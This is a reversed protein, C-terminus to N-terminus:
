FNIIAILGRQGSPGVTPALTFKPEAEPEGARRVATRGVIFGITAGAVVDSLHHRGGTVRSAGIITALTYMPLGVKAGHHRELVTAWAFANSTHGSPFSNDASGDPRTRQVTAKLAATYAFTVASAVVVDYSSDRFSQDRTGRGIALMGVAALAAAGGGFEAGFAALDGGGNPDSTSDDALSSLGTAAMGVAFPVLSPRSFVGIATRGMNVPLRGITRRGDDAVIPEHDQEARQRDVPRASAAAPAEAQAEIQAEIQAEAQTEVQAGAQAEAQGEATSAWCVALLTALVLAQASGGRAPPGQRVDRVGRATETAGM